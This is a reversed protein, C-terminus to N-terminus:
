SFLHLTRREELVVALLRIRGSQRCSLGLLFFLATAMLVGDFRAVFSAASRALFVIIASAPPLLHATPSESTSAQANHRYIMHVKLNSVVRNMECLKRECSNLEVLAAVCGRIFFGMIWIVASATQLLLARFWLYRLFCM